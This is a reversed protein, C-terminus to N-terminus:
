CDFPIPVPIIYCRWKVVIKEIVIPSPPPQTSIPMSAGNQAVRDTRTFDVRSGSNANLSSMGVILISIIKKYFLNM